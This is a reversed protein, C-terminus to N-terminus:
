YFLKALDIATIITRVSFYKAIKMFYDVVILIVNYAKSNADTSLLLEVIMNM